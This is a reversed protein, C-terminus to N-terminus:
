FNSLVRIMLDHFTGPSAADYFGGGSAQAIRLLRGKDPHDGYSVTFVHISRETPQNRLTHLLADVQASTAGTGPSLLVIADIRTADYTGSIEDIAGQVLNVLSVEGEALTMAQIVAQIQSQTDALSGIPVLEDFPRTAGPARWLGVQDGMALVKLADALPQKILALNGAGVSHSADIVILVRAPKRLTDWSSQIAAIVQGTPLQVSRGGDPNLGYTPSIEEGGVGHRNRFGAGQFDAQSEPSLLYALFQDSAARKDAAAKKDVTPWNLLTYPHDALITGDTPYIAELLERPPLGQTLLPDGKVNGVNYNWVEKEEVAVASVYPTSSDQQASLLNTLFTTATDGYHAVSSEVKKVFNKVELEELDKTTLNSTKGSAAYYTNILANLGSTSLYPNTKGLRFAGWTPHGYRAWGMPDRALEFITTWGIKRGPWGLATAMSEPIAIVLPSQMLSTPPADPVFLSAKHNEALKWDLLNVWTNASPIWVDPRAVAQSTWDNALADEAAGSVVAEVTVEVCRSGVVPRKAEFKLAAQQMLQSKEQSSVVILNLCGSNIAVQHLGGAMATVLVAFLITVAVPLDIRWVRGM